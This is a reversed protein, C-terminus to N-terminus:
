TFLDVHRTVTDIKKPYVIKNYGCIHNFMELLM